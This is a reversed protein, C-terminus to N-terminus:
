KIGRAEPLVFEEVEGGFLCVNIGLRLELNNGDVTWGGRSKRKRTELTPPRLTGLTHPVSRRPQRSPQHQSGYTSFCGGAKTNPTPTDTLSWIYDCTKNDLSRFGTVSQWPVRFNSLWYIPWFLISFTFFIHYESMSIFSIKRCVNSCGDWRKVLTDLGATYFDRSQQRLWKRKFRKSMLSINPEWTNEKRVLCISTVIGVM